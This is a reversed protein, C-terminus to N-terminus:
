IPDQYATPLAASPIIINAVMVATLLVILIIINVTATFQSTRIYRDEIDTSVIGIVNGNRLIPVAGTNFNGWRDAVNMIGASVRGNFAILHVESIDEYEDFITNDKDPNDPYPDLDTDFIFYFRDDIKKLAYIYTAGVKEQLSRLAELTYSYDDFDANIDELSGYSFFRDVDILERAAISISILNSKVSEDLIARHDLNNKVSFFVSVTLVVILLGVVASILFRQMKKNM